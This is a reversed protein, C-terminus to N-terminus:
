IYSMVPRVTPPHKLESIRVPCQALSGSALNLMHVPRVTLRRCQRTGEYIQQPPKLTAQVLLDKLHPPFLSSRENSILHDYISKYQVSGLFDTPIRKLLGPVCKTVQHYHDDFLHTCGTGGAPFTPLAEPDVCETALGM